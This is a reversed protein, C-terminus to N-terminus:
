EPAGLLRNNTSKLFNLEVVIAYLYGFRLILTINDFFLVFIESDQVSNQTGDFQSLLFRRLFTMNRVLRFFIHIRNNAKQNSFYRYCGFLKNSNLNKM